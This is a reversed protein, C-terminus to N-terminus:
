LNVISYKQCVRYPLLEKLIKPSNSIFKTLKFEGASFTKIVKISTKMAKQTAPFLDLYNDMYFQELM